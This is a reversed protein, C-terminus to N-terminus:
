SQERFQKPTLGTAKKFQKHFYSTNSYGTRTSVEQLSLKTTLLLKKAEHIRENSIYTSLQIGSLKHFLYSIYDPNMHIENAISSRSLTTSSLNNQIHKKVKSLFIEQENDQQLSEKITQFLKNAWDLLCDLSSTVSAEENADLLNIDSSITDSGISELANMIAHLLRQYILRLDSLPYLTSKKIYHSEIEKVILDSRNEIILRAWVDSNLTNIKAHTLDTSSSLAIPILLNSVIFSKRILEQAIHYFQSFNYLRISESVFLVFYSQPYKKSLLKLSADSSDENELDIILYDNQDIFHMFGPNKQLHSELYDWTFPFDNINKPSPYRHIVTFRFSKDIWNKNLDYRLIGNNITDSSNMNGKILESWFRNHKLKQSANWSNALIQAHETFEIEKFKQIADGLIVSLKEPQVPKVIYQYCGLEIAKKAYNFNEHGTLLLKIIKNNKQTVKEILDLGSGKPMEVDTLLIHIEKEQLIQLAQKMSYACYTENIGLSLWDINKLIGQVIYYEDDVILINM